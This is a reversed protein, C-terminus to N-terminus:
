WTMKSTLFFTRGRVNDYNKIVYRPRSALSPPGKDTVNMIGATLTLNEISWANRWQAAIDHGVWAPYYDNVVGSKFKSVGNVTWAATVDGRTARITAHVTDKPTLPDDKLEGLFGSRAESTHFWSVDLDFDIARYKWETSVRTDFGTITSDFVNAWPAVIELHERDNANHGATIGAPLAGAHHLEIIKNLPLLSPADNEEFKVRDISIKVSSIEAVIGFSVHKVPYPKLNPNGGAHTVHAVVGNGHDIVRYNDRHSEANMAYLSPAADGKVISGRLSLTNSIDFRTSLEHNKTTGLDNFDDLRGAVVLDWRSSLPILLEAFGSKSKRKGDVELGGSGLVDEEDVPLGDNNRYNFKNYLKRNEAEAGLKWKIDRGLLLLNNGSLQMGASRRKTYSERIRVVSSEAIARPSTSTPDVLNYNGLNIQEQVKTADVFTDSTEDIEHRYDRIYIDYDVGNGFEGRLGLTLDRDKLEEAWDRFGHGQYRHYLIVYPPTSQKDIDNIIKDYGDTGSRFVLRGPSPAYRTLANGTAYRADLYIENDEGLPHDFSLFVSKRDIRETQWSANAYAYGCGQGDELGPVGVFELRVYGGGNCKGLQATKLGRDPYFVTNGYISVGVTDYYNTPGDQNYTAKSYSRDADLIEDDKFTDYGIVLHGDGVPGGWIVNGQISDGGKLGPRSIRTGLELGEFDKRLVINIVGGSTNDGITAARSTGLVEVREIASIPIMELTHLKVAFDSISIPRGNVLVLKHLQGVYNARDLGYINLGARNQLLDYVNSIGTLELEDREIIFVTRVDEASAPRLGVQLFGILLVTGIRLLTRCTSNM